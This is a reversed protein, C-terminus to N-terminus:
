NDGFEEPAQPKFTLYCRCNHVIIDNSCFWGDTTQLDYVHGSHELDRIDLVEDTAVLGSLGNLLQRFFEPNSSASDVTGLALRGAHSAQEDLISGLQSAYGLLLPNEPAFPCAVMVSDPTLEGLCPGGFASDAIGGLRTHEACLGAVGAHQVDAWVFSKEGGGQDGFAHEDTLLVRKAFVVDVERNFGVEDGHFNVATADARFELHPGELLSRFVNEIRAPKYHHDDSVLYPLKAGVQQCIFQDGQRISHAPVFGKQTLVPHNPTVTLRRGSYTTFEIAQGSYFAKSGAVIRGQIMAGPLICNPHAPPGSPFQRGWVSEPTRNLPRCVKCVRDDGESEWLMLLAIGTKAEYHRKFEVEGASNAATTETTAASESQVEAIERVRARAAATTQALTMGANAANNVATELQSRVTDTMGRALEAARGSAYSGALEGAAQSDPRFRKGTDPDDFNMGEMGLLYLVVLARRTDDEIDAQLQEWLDDPINRVDPPDGLAELLAVRNRGIARRLLTALKAERALRSPVDPV